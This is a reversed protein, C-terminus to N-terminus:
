KPPALLTVDLPVEEKGRQVVVKVKDGQKYKRLASDFDELGGIKSDGFKIIVDGGKLGGKEAPSDKSVGS